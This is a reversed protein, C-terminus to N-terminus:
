PVVTTGARGALLEPLDGLAGIVALRGSRAVRAAALLKPRLTQAEFREPELAALPLRHLPREGRVPWCPYVGAVDSGLLLADADIERVLLAAVRDRDVRVDVGHERGERDRAVVVGAGCLVAHGGRLLTRIAGSQLVTLPEPSSADRAQAFAAAAGVPGADVLTRVLITVFSCPGSAVDRLMGELRSASAVAACVPDAATVATAPAEPCVVVLEHGADLLDHVARAATEIGRFREEQVRPDVATDLAASGLSIVVRM